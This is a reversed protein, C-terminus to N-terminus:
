SKLNAKQKSFAVTYAPSHTLSLRVTVTRHVHYSKTDDFQPTNEIGSSTHNHRYTSRLLTIFVYKFFFFSANTSRLMSVTLRKFFIM